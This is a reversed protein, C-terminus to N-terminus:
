KIDHKKMQFVEFRRAEDETLFATHVTNDDIRVTVIWKGSQQVVTVAKAPRNGSNM